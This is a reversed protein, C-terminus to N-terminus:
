VEKYQSEWQKYNGNFKSSIYKKFSRIDNKAYDKSVYIQCPEKIIEWIVPNEWKMLNQGNYQIIFGNGYEVVKINELHEKKNIM